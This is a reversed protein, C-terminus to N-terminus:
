NEDNLQNEVVDIMNDFDTLSEPHNKIHNKRRLVEAKQWEPVDSDESVTISIAKGKYLLKLKELFEESIDNPSSFQFTSDMALVNTNM